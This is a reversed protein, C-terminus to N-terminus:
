FTSGLGFVFGPARLLNTGGLILGWQRNLQYRLRADVTVTNLNYVDLAVTLPGGPRYDLGLGLQSEYIGGRWWLTSNLRSGAQLVLGSTAGIDHVGFRYFRDGSPLLTVDMGHAGRRGDYSVDYTLM